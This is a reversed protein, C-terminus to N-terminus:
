PQTKGGDLEALLLAEAAEDSLDAIAAAEASRAHPPPSQRVDDAFVRGDLYDTLDRLTPYDFALTAPLTQDLSRGLANRLEVAMLSDLGFEKLPRGEEVPTAQDLSLTRLALLRIHALLLDRRQRAPAAKLQPLISAVPSPAVAPQRM